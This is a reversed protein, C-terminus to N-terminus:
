YAIPWDVGRGHITKLRFDSPLLRLCPGLWHWTTGGVVKLHPSRFKDPGVQRYWFDPDNSIPHMAEKTPPYPCEPVKIAANKFRETADVRDVKDGAEVIAVRVGADALRAALLAGAIGSGVIVIDAAIDEAM